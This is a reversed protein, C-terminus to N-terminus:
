RRRDRRPGGGPLGVISTRETSVLVNEHYIGPPVLVGDGPGATDVAAQISSRVPIVRAQAATPLVLARAVVLVAISV